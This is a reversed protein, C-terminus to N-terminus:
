TGTQMLATSELKLRFIIQENLLQSRFIGRLKDLKQEVIQACDSMIKMLVLQNLMKEVDEKEAGGGPSPQEDDM